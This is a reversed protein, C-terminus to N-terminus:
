AGVEENEASLMRKLHEHAHRLNSRVTNAKMGMHEAIDAAKYGDFEWAMVQQQVQPLTRLLRLVVEAEERSEAEVTDPVLTEAQAVALGQVERLRRESRVADAAKRGAVRRVWARPDRITEGDWVRLLEIMADQAADEAVHQDYGAMCLHRVLGRLEGKCFEM